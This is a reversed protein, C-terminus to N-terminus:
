ETSPSSKDRQNECESPAMATWDCSRFVELHNRTEFVPDWSNSDRNQDREKRRVVETGLL